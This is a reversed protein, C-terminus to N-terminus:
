GEMPGLLLGIGDGAVLPRKILLPRCSWFERESHIGGVRAGAQDRFGRLPALNVSGTTSCCLTKKEEM